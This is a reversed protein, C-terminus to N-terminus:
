ANKSPLSVTAFGVVTTGVRSNENKLDLDVLNEGDEQWKRKVTGKTVVHSGITNFIRMRFPGVRKVRGGLGMYERVTREWMGQVFGNNAYAEPAGQALAIRDNHHVQNFDRNGGATIILRQLTVNFEVPAVEDGEKVDDWYIQKSWDAM